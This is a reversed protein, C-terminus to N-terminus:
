FENKKKIIFEIQNGLNIKEVYKKYKKVYNIFDILIRSRVGQKKIHNELLNLYNDGGVINTTFPKGHVFWNLHNIFSYGALSKATFNKLQLIKALKKLSLISFYNSTMDDYIFNIYNQNKWFNKLFDNKNPTLIIIEGNIELTKYLKKIFLKPNRVYQLSYFLFVKNFKLETKLIEDIDFFCKIKLNKNVFNNKEIDIELGYVNTKKKKKIINLFYGWSCGVELINTNKNKKKDLYKKLYIKSQLEGNKFDEELSPLKLGAPKLRYIDLGYKSIKKLSNNKLFEFDCFKCYNIKKKSNNRTLIYKHHTNKSCILCKQM